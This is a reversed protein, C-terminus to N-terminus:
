HENREAAPSKPSGVTQGVAFPFTDASRRRVDAAISRQLLAVVGGIIIFLPWSHAWSLIHLSDLLFLVGVLIVWISSRVAALLRLPHTPTGDDAFTHGDATMRRIFIWIGIGILAIPVLLYLPLGALRRTDGLLFLVGLGILVLAGIPLQSSPQPPIQPSTPPPYAAWAETASSPSWATTSSAAFPPPPAAAGFGAQQTNPVYAPPPPFPSSDSPAAAPPPPVVPPQSEPPWSGFTQSGFTQSGPPQSTQSGPTQSGPTQSGPTQSRFTQSGPTPWARGFGFREGIDNLGFPNPLPTGERRAKATHFAEFAQYFIWAVMFFSFLGNHDTLSILVAFVILHVIGKAYQGNYMAGVGPIFGLLLALAPNPTGPPPQVGSVTYPIGDATGTYSYATGGGPVTQYSASGTTPGAGFNGAQAGPQAAAPPPVGFPIGVAANALALRAELCPECFVAQGVTRACEACLPKGCNQCFAQRERDPHNACTM